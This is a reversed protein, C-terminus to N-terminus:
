LLGKRIMYHIMIPVLTSVMVLRALQYAVIISVDAGMSLGALAMEAAGGPALALFATIEDFQYYGAIFEAMAASVALMFVVGVLVCPLCNKAKALRHPELQTGIFLGISAQTFMMLVGPPGQVGHAVVSVAATLLAPGLLRPIPFHLKKAITYGVPGLVVLALWPVAGVGPALMSAEHAKADFLVIVLIPVTFLVGLLRIVQMVMIINPNYSDDEEAMLMSMTLGGPLIGLICSKYDEHTWKYTLYSLILCLGLMLVNSFGIGLIQELIRSWTAATFKAGIGYGAVYLAYERYMKPWNTREDECFCKCCISVAIGAMLYPIPLHLRSLVFGAALAAAMLGVRYVYLM